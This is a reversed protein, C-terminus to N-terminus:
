VGEETTDDPRLWKPLVRGDHRTFGDTWHDKNLEYEAIEFLGGESFGPKDNARDVAHSADSRTACVGILKEDGHPDTHWLLYVTRLALPAGSQMALSDMNILGIKRGSKSKTSNVELAAAVRLLAVTDPQASAGQSIMQPNGPQPRDTVWIPPINQPGGKAFHHYTDIAAM